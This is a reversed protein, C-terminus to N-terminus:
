TRLFKQRKAFGSHKIWVQYGAQPSMTNGCLKCVYEPVLEMWIFYWSSHDLSLDLTIYLYTRTGFSRISNFHFIRISTYYIDSGLPCVISTQTFDFSIRTEYIKKATKWSLNDACIILLHYIDQSWNLKSQTDSFPSRWTFKGYDTRIMIKNISIM